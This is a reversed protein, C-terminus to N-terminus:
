LYNREMSNDLEQQLKKSDRLVILKNVKAVLQKKELKEMERSVTERTMAISNAIDSHTVPIPITITKDEKEVGFRQGLFLLRAILRAYSNTYELNDVRDVYINHIDVIRHIVEHLVDPKDQIFSMFKERPAKRLVVDDMAEYFLHKNIHNFTWIIPFIEGPKYFVYIKQAGTPLLTYVRVYGKEIYYLYPHELVNMSLMVESRKYLKSEHALFFDVLPSNM